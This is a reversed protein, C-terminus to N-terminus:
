RHFFMGIHPDRCVLVSLSKTSEQPVLEPGAPSLRGLDAFKAVVEREADRSDVPIADLSPLGAAPGDARVTPVDGRERRLPGHPRWVLHTM